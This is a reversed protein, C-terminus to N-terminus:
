SIVLSKHAFRKVVAHVRQAQLLSHLQAACGPTNLSGVVHEVTTVCVLLIYIGVILSLEYQVLEWTELQAYVATCVCSLPSGKLM